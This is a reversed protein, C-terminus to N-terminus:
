STSVVDPSDRFGYHDDDDSFTVASDADSSAAPSRPHDPPILEARVADELLERLNADRNPDNAAEQLAV